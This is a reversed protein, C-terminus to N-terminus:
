GHPSRPCIGSSPGTRNCSSCQCRPCSHTAENNGSACDLSGPGLPPSSQTPSPRLAQTGTIPDHSIRQVRLLRRNATFGIERLAPMNALRKGIRFDQSDNIITETRLARGEKHYQKITANSIDSLCARPSGETIVRTRFRGPTSPARGEDAPPRLGPRGPGPPRFLTERPDREGLANAGVGSQQANADFLDGGEVGLRLPSLHM